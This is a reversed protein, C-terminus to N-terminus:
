FKIKFRDYAGNYFWMANKEIVTNWQNPSSQGWKKGEELDTGDVPAKPQLEAYGFRNQVDGALKYNFTIIYPKSSNPHLHALHPGTSFQTLDNDTQPGTLQMIGQKNPSWSAGWEPGLGEKKILERLASQSTKKGNVLINTMISIPKGFIKDVVGKGSYNSYFSKASNIDYVNGQTLAMKMFDGESLKKENLDKFNNKRWETWKADNEKNLTLVYNGEKGWNTGLVEGKSNRIETTDGKPDAFSIPNNNFASYPSTGITPKPDINWRRVIRADYQWFEATTTNSAIEPTKEQGNISYRYSGSGAQYTRGPMTMGGPYYDNATVVDALYYDVTTNNTTHQIKKDSITVLVNGLHNAM